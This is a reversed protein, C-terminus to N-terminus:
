LYVLHALTRISHLRHTSIVLASRAHESGLRPTFVSCMFCSYVVLAFLLGIIVIIIIIIIMVITITASIITASIRMHIYM